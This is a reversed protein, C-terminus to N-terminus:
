ANQLKTRYLVNIILEINSLIHIHKKKELLLRCVLDSHSQLESTHEESRLPNLFRTESLKKKVIPPSGFISRELWREREVLRVIGSRTNQDGALVEAASRRPFM